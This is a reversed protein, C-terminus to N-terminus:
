NPEPEESPTAEVPMWRYWYGGDPNQCMYRWGQSSLEEPTLDKPPVGPTAIVDTDDIAEADLRSMPSPVVKLQGHRVRRTM